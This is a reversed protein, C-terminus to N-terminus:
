FGAPPLRDSNEVNAEAQFAAAIPHTPLEEHEGLLLNAATSELDKVRECRHRETADRFRNYEQIVKIVNQIADQVLTHSCAM